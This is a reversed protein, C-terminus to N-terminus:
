SPRGVFRNFGKCAVLVAAAAALTALVVGGVLILTFVVPGLEQDFYVGYTATQTSFRYQLVHIVGAEFAESLLVFPNIILMADMIHEMYDPPYQVRYFLAVLLAYMAPLILWLVLGAGQALTSAILARKLVLGFLAGVGGIFIATGAFILALHVVFLPGATGSFVGVVGFHFLVFAPVFWLQRFPGATKALVIRRLRVPATLLTDLTGAEREKAFAGATRSAVQVTFIMLGTFAVMAHVATVSDGTSGGAFAFWLWFLVAAGVVVGFKVRGTFAPQRLERWLIPNDWVERSTSAFLLGGPKKAATASPAAGPSSDSEPAEPGTPAGEARTDRARRWPWRGKGEARDSPENQKKNKVPGPADFAAYRNLVRRCSFVALGLAVASFGLNYVIAPVIRPSEGSEFASQSVMGLTAPSFVLWLREGMEPSLRDARELAFIALLPLMVISVFLGLGGAAAASSRQSRVSMLTGCALGLVFVSLSLGLSYAISAAPLGGFVRVSLLIPTPIAALILLLVLRASFKGLIIESAPLPTTMLSPLTRSLKEDAVAGATLSPALLALVVFQIWVITTATIPAITQYQQLAAASGGGSISASAGFFAMGIVLLLLMTYSFRYSYTSGKRGTVRMEKAFSPGFFLRLPSYRQLVSLEPAAEGIYTRGPAGAPLSTM